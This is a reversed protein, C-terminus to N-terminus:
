SIVTQYRCRFPLYLARLKPISFARPSSASLKDANSRLSVPPGRILLLFGYTSVILIKLPERLGAQVQSAATAANAMSAVEQTRSDVASTTWLVAGVALAAACVVVTLYLRLLSHPSLARLAGGFTGMM